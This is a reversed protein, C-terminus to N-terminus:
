PCEGCVSGEEPVRDAHHCIMLDVFGQPETSVYVKVRVPLEAPRPGATLLRALLEDVAQRDDVSGSVSILPNTAVNVRLDAYRADTALTQPVGATELFQEGAAM